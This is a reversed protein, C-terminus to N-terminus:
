APLSVVEHQAGSVRRSLKETQWDCAEPKRLGHASFGRDVGPSRLGGEWGYGYRAWMKMDRAKEVRSTRHSMAALHPPPQPSRGWQVGSWLEDAERGSLM